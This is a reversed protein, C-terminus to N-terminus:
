NSRVLYYDGFHTRHGSRVIVYRVGDLTGEEIIKGTFWGKDLTPENAGRDMDYVTVEDQNAVMTSVDYENNEILKQTKMRELFMQEIRKDNVALLSIMKIQALTKGSYDGKLTETFLGSYEDDIYNILNYLEDSNGLYKDLTDIVDDAKAGLDTYLQEIDLTDTSTGANKYFVIDNQAMLSQGIGMIAIMAILILKKMRKNKKNNINNNINTNHNTNKIEM